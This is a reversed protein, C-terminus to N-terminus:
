GPSRSRVAFTPNLLVRDGDAASQDALAFGAGWVVLPAAVILGALVQVGTVVARHPHTHTVM